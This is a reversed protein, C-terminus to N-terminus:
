KISTIDTTGATRHLYEMLSSETSAATIKKLSIKGTLESLVRTSNTVFLGNLTANEEMGQLDLVNLQIVKKNTNPPYNNEM